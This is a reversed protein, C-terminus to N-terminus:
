AAGSVPIQFFDNATVAGGTVHILRQLVSPDPVRGKEYRGFAVPTVGLRNAAESVSLNQNRRWDSLKM